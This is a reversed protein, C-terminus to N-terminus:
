SQAAVIVLEVAKQLTVHDTNLMIDYLNPDQWDAGYFHKLYRARDRDSQRVQREAEKVDVKFREMIRSIRVEESATIRVRLVGPIDRLIIHGGRGVIVVDGVEAYERIVQRLLNAYDSAKETRQERAITKAMAEERSLGDAQMMMAALEDYVFIERRTVSPEAPASTNAQLAELIRGLFGPVAEKGELQTVMEDDPYGAIEAARHLIERDLYRLNLRQAVAAAIYSGQSGLQRSITIVTKM